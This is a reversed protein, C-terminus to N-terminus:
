INKKIDISKEALKKKKPKVLPHGFRIPLDNESVQMYEKTYLVNADNKSKGFFV